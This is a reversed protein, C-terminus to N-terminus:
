MRVKPMEPLGEYGAASSRRELAWIPSLGAARRTGAEELPNTSAASTMSRGRKPSPSLGAEVAGGGQQQHQPRSRMRTPMMGRLFGKTPSSRPKPDRFRPFVGDTGSGGGGSRALDTNVIRSVPPATGQFLPTSEDMAGGLTHKDRSAALLEKEGDREPERQSSGWSGGWLSAM